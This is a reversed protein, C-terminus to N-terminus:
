DIKGDAATSEEEKFNLNNQCKFEFFILSMKKFDGKLLQPEDKL